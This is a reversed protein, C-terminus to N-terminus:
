FGQMLVASVLLPVFRKIIHIEISIAPKVPCTMSEVIPFITCGGIFLYWVTSCNGITVSSNLSNNNADSLVSLVGLQENASAKALCSKNILEDNALRPADRKHCNNRSPINNLLPNKRFKFSNLVCGKFIVGVTAFSTFIFDLLDWRLTAYNVVPM